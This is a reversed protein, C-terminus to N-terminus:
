DAELGARMERARAATSLRSGLFVAEWLASESFARRAELRRRTEVPAGALLVDAREAVAGLEWDLDGWWAERVTEDLAGARFVAARLGAAWRFDVWAALRGVWLRAAQGPAAASVSAPAFGM